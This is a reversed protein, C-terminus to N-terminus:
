EGKTETPTFTLVVHDYEAGYHVEPITEHIIVKPGDDPILGVGYRRRKAPKGGKTFAPSPECLNDLIIKDISATLNRPDFPRGASRKLHVATHLRAPTPIFGLLSQQKAEWCWHLGDEKLRKRAWHNMNLFENNSLPKWKITLVYKGDPTKTLSNM